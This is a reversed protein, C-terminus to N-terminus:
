ITAESFKFASCLNEFNRSGSIHLQTTEPVGVNRFIIKAKIHLSFFFVNLFLPLLNVQCAPVSRYFLM